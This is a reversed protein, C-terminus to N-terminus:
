SFMDFVITSYVHRQCKKITRTLMTFLILMYALHLKHHFFFVCVSDWWNGLMHIISTIINPSPYFQHDYFQHDYILWVTLIGLGIIILMAVTAVYVM